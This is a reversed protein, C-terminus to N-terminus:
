WTSGVFEFCSISFGIPEKTVWCTNRSNTNGKQLIPRLNLTEEEGDMSSHIFENGNEWTYVHVWFGTGNHAVKKCAAESVLELKTLSGQARFYSCVGYSTTGAQGTSALLALATLSPLLKAFM